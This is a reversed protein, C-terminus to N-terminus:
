HFIMPDHGMIVHDDLSSAFDETRSVQPTSTIVFLVKLNDLVPHFPAHSQSIGSSENQIYSLNEYFLLANETAYTGLVMLEFKSGKVFCTGNSPKDFLCSSLGYGKVFFWQHVVLDTWIIVSKGECYSGRFLDIIHSVQKSRNM